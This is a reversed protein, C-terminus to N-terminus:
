EDHKSPLLDFPDALPGRSGGEPEIGLGKSRRQLCIGESDPSVRGEGPRDVEKRKELAHIVEKEFFIIRRGIKRGGLCEFQNLVTKYSLGLFRALDRPRVTSGFKEQLISSGAAM